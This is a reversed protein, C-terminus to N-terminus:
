SAQVADAADLAAIADESTASALTALVEGTAPDHVDFTGGDSAERWEGNILLGTPVSALLSAEREPSIAPPLATTVTM